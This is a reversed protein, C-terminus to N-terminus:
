ETPESSERVQSSIWGNHMSLVVAQTRDNVDLKRLISSMHNKITQESIALKNAIQKSIYGSAIHELIETERPTLPSPTLAKIKGGRALEELQSLEEEYFRRYLRKGRRWGILWIIGLGCIAVPAVIGIVVGQFGMIVIVILLVYAWVTVTVDWRETKARGRAREAAKQETGKHALKLAEAGNSIKEKM